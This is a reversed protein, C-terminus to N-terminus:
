SDEFGTGTLGVVELIFYILGFSYNIPFLFAARDFSLITNDHFDLTGITLENSDYNSANVIFVGNHLNLLDEIAASVYENYSDFYEGSYRSAFEIATSEDMSLYTNAVYSGQITQSVCYETPFETCTSPPLVSFDDGIHRVFNNFLLELYAKGFDPIATESLISFEDIMEKFNNKNEENLELDMFETQSRYDTFLNEYEEYSFIGDELLIQGFILFDPVKMNLIEVVQAQTLYGDRIAIESFRKGEQKQLGIVYEVEQASMYGTYLAMTSIRISTKSQRALASLLQEKTIHGNSFLYNGFLETYM